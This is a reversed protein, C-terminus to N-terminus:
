ALAAERLMELIRHATVPWTHNELVFRRAERGMDEARDPSRALERLIDALREPDPEDLHEAISRPFIEERGQGVLMVLPIGYIAAEFFVIGTTDFLTPMCFLNAERYATCLLEFQAPDRKDLPGLIRVGAQSVAPTCGVITLVAEPVSERLIRFGEILLPGGKRKWDEGVFLLHPHRWDRVVPGPDPMGCAPPCTRIRSANVGQAVLGRATWPTNTWILRCADLFRREGEIARAVIQSPYDAFGYEKSYWPDEIATAISMEIHAVVPRRTSAVGAVGFQLVVDHDPLAAMMPEYRRSLREIAEPM